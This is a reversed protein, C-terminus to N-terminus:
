HLVGLHLPSWFLKLLKTRVHVLDEISSRWENECFQWFNEKLFHSDCNELNKWTRNSILYPPFISSVPHEAGSFQELNSIKWLKEAVKREKEPFHSMKHLICGLHPGNWWNPRCASWIWMGCNCVKECGNSLALSWGECYSSVREWYVIFDVSSVSCSVTLSLPWIQDNMRRWEENEGNSMMGFHTQFPPILSFHLFTVSFDHIVPILPIPM